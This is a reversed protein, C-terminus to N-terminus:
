AVLCAGAEAGASVTGVRSGFTAPVVRRARCWIWKGPFQDDWVRQGQDCDSRRQWGPGLAGNRAAGETLTLHEKETLGIESM